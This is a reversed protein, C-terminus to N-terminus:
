FEIWCSKRRILLEEETWGKKLYRLAGNFFRWEYHWGADHDNEENGFNLRAM